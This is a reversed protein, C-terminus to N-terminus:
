ELRDTLHQYRALAGYEQPSFDGQRYIKRREITRDRNNLRISSGFGTSNAQTASAEHRRYRMVKRRSIFFRAQQSWYARLYFETDLGGRNVRSSGYDAFGGMKKFISKRMVVSANNLCHVKAAEPFRSYRATGPSVSRMKIDGNKSASSRETIAGFMEVGAAFIDCNSIQLSSVGRFLRDPHSIDDGDQIAVFDTELFPVVNNFSTYQGLNERNRYLRVDPHGYFQKFFVDSSERSADDILHLVVKCDNQSLVSEVAEALYGYHDRFPLVVDCEVAPRSMTLSRFGIAHHELIGDRYRYDPRASRSERTFVHPCTVTEWRSCILRRGELFFRQVLDIDHDAEVKGVGGSDVFSARRIILTEPPITRVFNDYPIQVEVSSGAYRASTGLLEGGESWLRSVGEAIRTPTSVSAVDQIAIFESRCAPVVEHMAQLDSLPHSVSHVLLDQFKGAISQVLDAQDSLVVLHLYLQCGVQERLRELAAEVCDLSQTLNLVVDCAIGPVFQVPADTHRAIRVDAVPRQVVRLGAIAKKRLSQAQGLSCGAVGNSDIIRQSLDLLLSALVENYLSGSATAEGMCVQCADKAVSGLSVDQVGSIELLRRCTLQAELESFHEQHCCNSPGPTLM